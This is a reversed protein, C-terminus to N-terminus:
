GSGNTQVTTYIEMECLKMKRATYAIADITLTVHVRQCGRPPCQCMFECVTFLGDQESSQLICTNNTDSVDGTKMSVVNPPCAQANYCFLGQGVVSVLGELTDDLTCSLTIPTDLLDSRSLQLCTDNNDDITRSFSDLVHQEYLQPYFLTITFISSAPLRIDEVCLVTIVSESFQSSWYEAAPPYIDHSDIFFEFMDTDCVYESIMWRNSYYANKIHYMHKYYHNTYVKQGGAHCPVRTNEKYNGNYDDQFIPCGSINYSDCKRAKGESIYMCTDTPYCDIM